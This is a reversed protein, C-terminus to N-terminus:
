EYKNGCTPCFKEGPRQKRGCETCYVRIDSAEVPMASIPALKLSVTAFPSYEFEMSITRFNQDSASGDEVRGTEQTEPAFSMSDTSASANVDSGFNVATRSSLSRESDSSLSKSQSGYSAISRRNLGGLSSTTMGVFPRPIPKPREYFFRVEVLGNKAIAAKVQANGAEVEYTSFKFRVPNDIQRELFERQGPRLILKRASIAEGNLRVEVGVSRTTPNFLELEFEEGDKLHVTAVGNDDYVRKRSKNVTVTATPNGTPTTNVIATPTPCLAYEWIPYYGPFYGNYPEHFHVM